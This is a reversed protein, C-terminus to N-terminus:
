EDKLQLRYGYSFGQAGKRGRKYTIFWGENSGKVLYKGVTKRQCPVAHAIQEQTPYCSRGDVDAYMALTMYIVKEIPALQTDKLVAEQWRTKLSANSSKYRCVSEVIGEVEELLLPPKCRVENEELLFTKIEAPNKGRAHMKGAISTLADNRAGETIDVIESTEIAYGSFYEQWASPLDAPETDFPSHLWEYQRKTDPHISPAVVFMKGNSLFDVGGSSKSKAGDFYKFVLHKGGGGTNAKVTLPLKGLRYELEHLTTDGGNRPDVDIVVIGSKKGALIGINKNDCFWEAILASDVSAQNPWDKLTPKKGHVPLVHWGLRPYSSALSEKSPFSVIKKGHSSM